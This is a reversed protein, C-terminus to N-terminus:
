FGETMETTLQIKMEITFVSRNDGSDVINEDRYKFFSRGDGSDVINEDRNNFVEAM